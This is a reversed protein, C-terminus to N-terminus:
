EQPLLKITIVKITDGTLEGTVEAEFDDLRKSGRIAALAKANGEADFAIFTDDRTYIGFGSRIASPKLLADRGHAEAVVMGGEIGSSLIRVKAEPASNRDMIVGKLTVVNAASGIVAFLGALCLSRSLM